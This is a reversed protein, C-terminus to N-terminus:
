FAHVSKTIIQEIEINWEVKNDLSRHEWRHKETVYVNGRHEWYKWLFVNKICLLIFTIDEYYNVQQMTWIRM